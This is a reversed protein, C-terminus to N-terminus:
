DILRDTILEHLDVQKGGGELGAMLIVTESFVTRQEVRNVSPLFLLETFTRAEATVRSGRYPVAPVGPARQTFLTWDPKAQVMCVM